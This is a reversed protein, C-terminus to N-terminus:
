PGVEIVGVRTLSNTGFVLKEGNCTIDGLGIKKTQLLSKETVGEATLLLVEYKSPSAFGFGFFDSEDPEDEFVEGDDRGGVSRIAYLRTSCFKLLDVDRRAFSNLKPTDPNGTPFVVVNAPKRTPRSISFGEDPESRNRAEAAIAFTGDEAIDRARSLGNWYRKTEGTVVNRIELTDDFEDNTTVLDGSLLMGTFLDFVNNNTPLLQRTAGEANLGIANFKEVSTKCNAQFDLIVAEGQPSMGSMVHMDGCFSDENDSIRAARSQAIRMTTDTSRASLISSQLDIARKSDPVARFIQAAVHGNRAVVGIAMANRSKYLQTETGTVLDKKVIRSSVRNYDDVSRVRTPITLVARYTSGQDVSMSVVLDVSKPVRKRKKAAVVAEGNVKKVHDLVKYLGAAAQEGASEAQPPREARPQAPMPPKSLVPLDGAVAVGSCTLVVLLAGTTALKRGRIQRLRHRWNPSPARM